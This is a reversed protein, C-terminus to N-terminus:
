LIRIGLVKSMDLLGEEDTLADYIKDGRNELESFCELMLNTIREEYRIVTEELMKDFRKEHGEFYLRSYNRLFGLRISIAVEFSEDSVTMNQMALLQLNMMQLFLAKGALLKQELDNLYSCDVYSFIMAYAIADAFCEERIIIKM